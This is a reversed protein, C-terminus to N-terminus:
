QLKQQIFLFVLGQILAWSNKELNSLKSKAVSKTFLIRNKWLIKKPRKRNQKIHTLLQQRLFPKLAIVTEIYVDICMM